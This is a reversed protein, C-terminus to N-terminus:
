NDVSSSGHSVSEKGVVGSIGNDRRYMVLEELITERHMYCYLRGVYRYRGILALVHVSVRGRKFKM